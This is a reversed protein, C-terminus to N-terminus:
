MRYTALAAGPLRLVRGQKGDIMAIIAMVDGQAGGQGGGERQWLVCVHSLLHVCVFCTSPVFM